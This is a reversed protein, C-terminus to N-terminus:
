EAFELLRPRLRGVQGHFDSINLRVLSIPLKFRRPGISGPNILLRGDRRQILPKHSHGSVVIHHGQLDGEPTSKLDHVMLFKWGCFAVSLQDPHASDWHDVNGRIATVPAITELAQLVEAKGIDGAHLIHDCGQLAQRVSERLLGHSDSVLGLKL